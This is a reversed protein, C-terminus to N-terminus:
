INHLYSSMQPSTLVCGTLRSAGVALESPWLSSSRGVEAAWVVRLAEDWLAQCWWLSAWVASCVCGSVWFRVGNTEGSFFSGTISSHNNPTGCASVQVCAPRRSTQSGELTCILYSASLICLRHLFLTLSLDYRVWVFVLSFSRSSSWLEEESSQETANLVNTTSFMILIFLFKKRVDMWDRKRWPGLVVLTGGAEGVLHRWLAVWNSARKDDTQLQLRLTRCICSVKHRWWFSCFVFGSTLAPQQFILSHQSSNQRETHLRSFSCRGPSM